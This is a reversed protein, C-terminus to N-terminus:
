SEALHGKLGQQLEEVLQSLAIGWGEHFGIEGHRKASDADGHLARATYRTGGDVAEFTLVCTFAPVHPHDHVPAFGPALATTWVLRHPASVELYCGVHTMRTGDPGQLVTRFGGGPRLDIEAEVVQWPKPCFWRQLLAPETWGRWLAEPTVPVIRELLLETSM